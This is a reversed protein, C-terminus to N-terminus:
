VETVAKSYLRFIVGRHIEFREEREREQAPAM